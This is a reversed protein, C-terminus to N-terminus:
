ISLPTGHASPDQYPGTSYYERLQAELSRLIEVDIRLGAEGPRNQTLGQVYGGAILSNLTHRAYEASKDAMELSWFSM